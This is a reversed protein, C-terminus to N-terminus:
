LGERLRNIIKGRAGETQVRHLFLPLEKLSILGAQNMENWELRSMDRWYEKDKSDNMIAQVYREGIPTFGMEKATM